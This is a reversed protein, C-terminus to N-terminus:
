RFYELSDPESRKPQTRLEETDKEEAAAKDAANDEVKEDGAIKKVIDPLAYTAKTIETNIGEISTFPSLIKKIEAKSPVEEIIKASLSSLPTPIAEAKVVDVASVAPQKLQVLQSGISTLAGRPDRLIGLVSGFGTYVLWILSLGLLYGLCDPLDPLLGTGNDSIGRERLLEKPSIGDKISHVSM